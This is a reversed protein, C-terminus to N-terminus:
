DRILSRLRNFKDEFAKIAAEIEVRASLAERTSFPQHFRSFQNQWALIKEHRLRFMANDICKRRLFKTWPMERKENGNCEKCALVRNSIYNVGGAANCDLHDMHGHRHIRDILKDCYACRSDFYNWILDKENKNLARYYLEEIARRM